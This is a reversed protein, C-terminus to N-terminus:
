RVKKKAMLKQIEVQKKQINQDIKASCQDPNKASKCATKAKGLVGIQAKIADVKYKKICENKQEGKTGKCARAAKTFYAKYAKRSLMIVLAAVVAAAVPVGKNLAEIAQNYNNGWAAAEGGKSVAGGGLWAPIMKADPVKFSAWKSALAKIAGSGGLAEKGQGAVSFGSAAKVKSVLGKLAAKDMDYATKGMKKLAAKTAQWAPDNPDMIKLLPDSAKENLTLAETLFGGVNSVAFLESVFKDEGKELTRMKGTFMMSMVQERSAETVFDMLTLKEEQTLGDQLNIYELAFLKLDTTKM